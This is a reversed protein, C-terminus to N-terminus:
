DQVTCHSSLIPKGDYETHKDGKGDRLWLGQGEDLDLTKIVSCSGIEPHLVFSGPAIDYGRVIREAQASNPQRNPLIVAPASPTPAPQPRSWQAEAARLVEEQQKSVSSPMAVANPRSPQHTTAEEADPENHLIRRMKEYPVDILVEDLCPVTEIISDPYSDRRQVIEINTVNMFKGDGFSEEEVTLYLTSGGSLHFFNNYLKTQLKKTMKEGFGRFYPSDFVQVGKASEARDIVAWLMRRQVKFDKELQPDRNTRLFDCVPCRKGFTVASCVYSSKGEIGLKRHCFYTREYHAVGPRPCHPNARSQDRTTIFPIVDIEYSGAKKLQFFNVNEPLKVSTPERRSTTNKVTEQTDSYQITM